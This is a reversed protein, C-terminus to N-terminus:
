IGVQFNRIADLALRTKAGTLLLRSDYFLIMNDFLCVKGRKLLFALSFSIHQAQPFAFFFILEDFLFYNL